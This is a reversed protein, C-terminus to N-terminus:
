IDELWIKSPLFALKCDARYKDVVVILHYKQGCSQQIQIQALAYCLINQDIKWHNDYLKKRVRNQSYFVGFLSVFQKLVNELAKISLSTPKDMIKM